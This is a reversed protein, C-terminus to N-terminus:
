AHLITKLTQILQKNQEPSGVTIRLTNPIIGHRNRVVIKHASLQDYLAAADAVELLIFNASSPYVKKIQRLEALERSLWAQETKLLQMEQEFNGQELISLAIQQSAASINYPPKVKNYYQLLEPSMWALGIRLAAMGWAKSLTQAVVLNPYNGIQTAQSVTGSFDIYAEDIVVIGKFRDLITSIREESLINGSPNNPSCLFMLKIDTREWYDEVAPLDIDFAADLPLQILSVNNIQAAVEYMGYTPGLCIAKDIGPECFIRYSLDIIEDSGNGLFLTAANLNKLAAIKQKLQKQYPDPYRNWQGFPNENADLFLAEAGTYEDRASSYPKLALINPRILATINM